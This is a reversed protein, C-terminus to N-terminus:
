TWAEDLNDNQNFVMRELPKLISMNSPLNQILAESAWFTQINKTDQIRVTRVTKPTWLGLSHLAAGVAEKDTKFYMPIAAKEPSLGAKANAYTVGRDMKNIVRQTTFDAYGLGLANGQTGPTLDLILIRKTKLSTHFSGLIDRNRGTVNTDMGTGSVDKGIRDVILLDVERFPIRLALRKSLRLLRAEEKEMDAVPICHLSHTEGRGNEVIGLGFLIPSKQLVIRGAEVILASFPHKTAFKHIAQAGCHSAMGVAMMKFLGSEIQGKFKTHAKIRNVVVIHDAHQALTNVHVPLHHRTAGISVTDMTARIPVNITKETINLKELVGLQGDATAGGHSGMAPFLFPRAGLINLERCLCALIQDLNAIGRSGVTVAVTSGAKVRHSLNLAHIRRSLTADIDDLRKQHIDQHVMAMRPFTENADHDNKWNTM